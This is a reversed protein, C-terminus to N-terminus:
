WCLLRGRGGSPSRPAAEFSVPASKAWASTNPQSALGAAESGCNAAAAARAPTRMVGWPSSWRQVEAAAPKRSRSSEAATATSTCASATAMGKSSRNVATSSSSAEVMTSGSPSPSQHGPQPPEEGVLVPADSLIWTRKSRQEPVRRPGSSVSPRVWSLVEASCVPGSGGPASRM